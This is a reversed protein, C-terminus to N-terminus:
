CHFSPGHGAIDVVTVPAGQLGVTQGCVFMRQAGEVLRDVVHLKRPTVYGGTGCDQEEGTVERPNGLTCLLEVEGSVPKGSAEFASM